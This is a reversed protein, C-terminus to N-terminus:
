KREPRDSAQIIARALPLLANNAGSLKLPQEASVSYFAPQESWVGTKTDPEARTIQLNRRKSSYELAIEGNSLGTPMHGTFIAAIGHPDSMNSACYVNGITAQGTGNPGFAKSLCAKVKAEADHPITRAILPDQPVPASPAKVRAHHHGGAYLSSPMGIALFMAMVPIPKDLTVEPLAENM